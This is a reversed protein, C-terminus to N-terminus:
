KKRNEDDADLFGRPTMIKIGRFPHLDLLDADGSILCDAKGYVALELFRNDKPDRCDTIQETIDILVAESVLTTLFQLREEETVYRNFAQRKLVDYLEEIAAFSLLIRGDARAKDLAKRPVSAAILSASLIVNTDFVFRKHTM